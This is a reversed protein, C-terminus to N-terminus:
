CIIHPMPACNLSADADAQSVVPFDSSDESGKGPTFIGCVLEGGRVILVGDVAM